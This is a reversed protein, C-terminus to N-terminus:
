HGFVRIAAGQVVSPESNNVYKAVDLIGGQSDVEDGNVDFFRITWTGKASEGYFANTLFVNDKLIYGPYENFESDLAPYILAQKSSLLVSRTGAPSIV